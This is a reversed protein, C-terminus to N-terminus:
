RGRWDRRRGILGIDRLPSRLEVHVSRCGEGTKIFIPEAVDVSAVKLAHHPIELVLDNGHIRIANTARSLIAYCSKM